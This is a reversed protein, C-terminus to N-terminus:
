FLYIRFVNLQRHHPQLSGKETNWSGLMFSKVIVLSFYILFKQQNLQEGGGADVAVKNWNIM